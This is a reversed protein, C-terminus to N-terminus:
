FYELNNILLRKKKRSKLEFILDILWLNNNPFYKQELLIQDM